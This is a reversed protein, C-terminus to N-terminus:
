RTSFTSVFTSTKDQTGAASFGSSTQGQPDTPKAADLGTSVNNGVLWKTHGDAMVFNSGNSHRGVRPEFQDSPFEPRNGMQGTAYSNDTGTTEDLHAYLRFDLGNSSSSFYEGIKSPNSAGEDGLLINSTVGSVEFLSVTKSPSTLHSLSIGPPQAGYYPKLSGGVVLNVNYGYSVVLNNPPDAQTKDDPCAFASISRVYPYIQGAWGEGAWLGDDTGPVGNPYTEDYDTNYM